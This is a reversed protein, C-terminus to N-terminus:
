PQRARIADDWGRQYAAQTKRAVAQRIAEVIIYVSVTCCVGVLIWSAADLVPKV